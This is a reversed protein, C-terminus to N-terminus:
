FKFEKLFVEQTKINTYGLRKYFTHADKRTVRSRLMVGRCAKDQAWDEAHQMLLAGIGRNRYSEDVVLGAIQAICESSVLRYVHILLWAVVDGKTEAVLLMYDDDRNIESIRKKMDDVRAPYGLQGSLRAIDGVDAPRAQRIETNGIVNKGAM